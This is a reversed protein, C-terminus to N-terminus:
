RAIGQLEEPLGPAIKRRSGTVDEGLCINSEQIPLNKVYAGVMKQDSEVQQTDTARQLAWTAQQAIDEASMTASYTAKSSQFKRSGAIQHNSIHDTSGSPQICVNAQEFREWQSITISIQLLGHWDFQSHRSNFFNAKVIAIKGKSQERWHHWCGSQHQSNGEM